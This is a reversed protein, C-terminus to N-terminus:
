VIGILGANEIISISENIIYAITVCDKLLPTGILMDLRICILIISLVIGKKCLGKWGANSELAGTSTQPSKKFVAAVIIGTIYDIGM